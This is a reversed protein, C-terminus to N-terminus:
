KKATKGKQEGTEEFQREITKRHVIKYHTSDSDDQTETDQKMHDSNECSAFTNCTTKALMGNDEANESDLIAFRNSRLVHADVRKTSEEQPQEIEVHATQVIDSSCREPHNEYVQVGVEAFKLCKTQITKTKKVTIKRRALDM